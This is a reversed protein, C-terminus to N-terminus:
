YFKGKTADVVKKGDAVVADKAEGAAVSVKSMEKDISDIASQKTESASIWWYKLSNFIFSSM